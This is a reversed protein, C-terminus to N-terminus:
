VGARFLDLVELALMNWLTFGLQSQYGEFNGAFNDNSTPHIADATAGKGPIAQAALWFNVVPVGYSNAIEVIALNFEMTKEFNLNGPEQNAPVTFFVPIVAQNVSDSAIQNVAARFTGVDMRYSDAMGFMILSLMPNMRDYECQLMSMNPCKVTDAFIPDIVTTSLHGTRGAMSARAFSDYSQSYYDITSQLNSASGLDYSGQSFVGLFTHNETNCDGVKAFNHPDRGLALNSAYLDRMHPTIVPLIPVGSLIQVLEAARPSLGDTGVTVAEVATVANSEGEPLPSLPITVAVPANFTESSQPLDVLATGGDWFVYRSAVWGRLDGAQTHILLWNGRRNRAEVVVEANVTVQAIIAQDTNDGTRINVTDLMRAPQEAQALATLAMLLTVLGALLIKKM